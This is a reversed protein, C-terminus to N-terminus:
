RMTWSRRAPPMPRSSSTTAAPTTSTGATRRARSDVRLGTPNPSSGGNLVVFDLTNTGAVFGSSITFPTFASFGSGTVAVQAGNLRMTAGDDAAFQGTLIATTPDFGALSFQTRYTYNGPANGSSQDRQPGIWKSKPGDAVWPPIPFATSNIVLASPGPFGADASAVLSYHGDATGDALLNGAGDVGTGFVPIPAPTSATGFVQVEALSLYNAGSLQVRM